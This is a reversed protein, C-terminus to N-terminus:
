HNLFEELMVEERKEADSDFVEQFKREDETFVNTQPQASIWKLEKSNKENFHEKEKKLSAKKAEIEREGIAMTHLAELHTMALETQVCFRRLKEIQRNLEKLQQFCIPENLFVAGVCLYIFLYRSRAKCMQPVARFHEHMALVCEARENCMQQARGMRTSCLNALRVNENNMQEIQEISLQYRSFVRACNSKQVVPNGYLFAAYNRNSLETQVNAFAERISELMQIIKITVEIFHVMLVKKRHLM